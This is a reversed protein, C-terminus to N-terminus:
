PVVREPNGPGYRIVDGRSVTGNTPDYTDDIGQNAASDFNGNPGVSVVGYFQAHGQHTAYNGLTMYSYPYPPQGSFLLQMNAGSSPTINFLDFLASSLYAVPTTLRTMQAKQNWLAPNFTTVDDGDPPFSNHDLQYMEIAMGMTRLDARARAVKARTQAELFNPLAIAALIGIVAVVILLEILTFAKRKDM